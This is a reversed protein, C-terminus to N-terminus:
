ASAQRAQADAERLAHRADALEREVAHLEGHRDAAGDPIPILQIQALRTELTGVRAALEARNTAATHDM